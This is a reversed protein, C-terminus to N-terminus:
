KQIRWTVFYRCKVEPRVDTPPYHVQWLCFREATKNKRKTPVDYAIVGPIAM